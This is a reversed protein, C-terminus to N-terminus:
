AKNKPALLYGLGGLVVAGGAIWAALKKNSVKRELAVKLDDKGNEFAKKVVSDRTGLKEEVAKLVEADTKPEVKPAKAKADEVAKKAKDLAEKESKLMDDTISKRAKQAIQEDTLGAGPKILEQEAEAVKKELEALTKDGETPVKLELAVKKLRQKMEELINVVKGDKKTIVPKGKVIKVEAGEANLLKLKKEFAEVKSRATTQEQVYKELDPMSDNISKIKNQVAKKGMTRVEKIIDDTVKNQELAQRLKAIEEKEAATAKNPFEFGLLGALSRGRHTGTTKDALEDLRLIDQYMQYKKLNTKKMDLAKKSREFQAESGKITAKAKDYEATNDVFYKEIAEANADVQRLNSLVDAAQM